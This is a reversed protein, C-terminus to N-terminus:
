ISSVSPGEFCMITNKYQKKGVVGWGEADGVSKRKRKRFARSGVRPAWDRSRGGPASRRSAERRAVSGFDDRRKRHRRGDRSLFGNCKNSLSTVRQEPSIM